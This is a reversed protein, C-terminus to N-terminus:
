PPPPESNKARYGKPPTIANQYAELVALRAPRNGLFKRINDETVAVDTGDLSKVDGDKWGKFVRCLRDLEFVIASSNTLPGEPPAFFEEDGGQAFLGTITVTDYGGAKPVPIEVPWEFPTNELFAFSM